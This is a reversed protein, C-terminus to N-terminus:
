LWWDQRGFYSTYFFIPTQEMLISFRFACHPASCQARPSLSRGALRTLVFLQRGHCCLAAACAPCSCVGACTITCPAWPGRPLPAQGAALAWRCSMRVSPLERTRPNRRLYALFACRGRLWETCSSFGLVCSPLSEWSTKYQRPNYFGCTLGSLLVTVLVCQECVPAAEPVEVVWKNHQM